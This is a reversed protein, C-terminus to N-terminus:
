PRLWYCAAVIAVLYIIKGTGMSDTCMGDFAEAIEDTDLKRASGAAFVSAILNGVGGRM